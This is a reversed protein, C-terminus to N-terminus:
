WCSLRSRMYANTSFCKRCRASGADASSANTRSGCRSSSTHGAPQYCSQLRYKHPTAAGAWEREAAETRGRPRPSSGPDDAVAPARHGRSETSFRRRGTNSYLCDGAAAIHQHPLQNHLRLRTNAQGDELDLRALRACAQHNQRAFGRYRDFCNRRNQSSTEGNRQHIGAVRAFGFGDGPASIIPAPEHAPRPGPHPDGIDACCGRRERGFM